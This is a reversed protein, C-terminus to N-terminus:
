SPSKQFRGTLRDCLGLYHLGEEVRGRRICGMGYIRSKERLHVLALEIQGADLMGGEMVKVLARVRFRDLAEVRRSLQDPHGGRKIVLPEPIYGIPYRCAVRIWMDYDECAPLTEDFPGVIDFLKKRAMASSPSIICLPLVHPFIWGGYKRHRKGQNVRRGNRIWIEDTYCLPFDPNELMFNVQRGIKEPTWLDDSDLFAVFEGSALEIGRNRAASPGSNEQRFYRIRDGFRSLALDTGDTSGDDVVIVEINRYTQSLVSEVAEVVMSARDFTTIVASVTPNKPPM